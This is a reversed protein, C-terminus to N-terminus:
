LDFNETFIESELVLCEDEKKFVFKTNATFTGFYNDFAKLIQASSIPEENSYVGFLNEYITRSIMPWKKFMALLEATSYPKCTTLITGIELQFPSHIDLGDVDPYYKPMNNNYSPLM